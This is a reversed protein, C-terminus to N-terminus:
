SRKEEAWKDIGGDLLSANDFGLYNLTFILRTAMPGWNSTYVVVHSDDSIGVGEFAAKLQDVPPLETGQQVVFKPPPMLRAGSIHAEKYDDPMSVHLIVVKPDNLHDALWQTSVVMGTRLKEQQATLSGALCLMSLLVFFAAYRRSM